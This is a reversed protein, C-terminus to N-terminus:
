SRPHKNEFADKLQQNSLHTYIQVTSINEHGLLVQLLRLDAGNKLLHTAFSHRLSHPSVNKAILAKKLIKKLIFWFAQRSLPKNTHSFFLYKKSIVRNKNNFLFLIYQKLLLLINKPIPVMREKDGKGLVKIFATEFCIDAIQLFLLESIRIGTAYLLYIMVKNRIGKNGTEKNAMCLLKQVEKETLYSPLKKELKPFHITKAANELSFRNNLFSFFRKLSSVKRSLSSASLGAQKLSRLFATIVKKKCQHTAIKKKKLFLIFQKIDSSYSHVTHMSFRQETILYSIFLDISQQWSINM